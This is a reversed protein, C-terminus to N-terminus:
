NFQFAGESRQHFGRLHEIHRDTLQKKKGWSDCSLDTGEIGEFYLILIGTNRRPGYTRAFGQMLGCPLVYGRDALYDRAENRVLNYALTTCHQYHKGGLKCIGSDLKDKTNRFLDSIFYTEIKIINVILAKQVKHQQSVAFVYYEWNTQLTTNGTAAEAVVDKTFNGLYEFESHVEINLQPFSSYFTNGVVKREIKFAACGSFFLSTAAIALVFHKCTNM